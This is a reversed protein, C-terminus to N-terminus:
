KAASRWPPETCTGVTKGPRRLRDLLINTQTGKLHDSVAPHTAETQKDRHQNEIHVKILTM